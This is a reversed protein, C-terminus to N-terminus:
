VTTKIRLEISRKALPKAKAHQGSQMLMVVQNQLDIAEMYEMPGNADKFM